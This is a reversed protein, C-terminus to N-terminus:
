SSLGGDHDPAPAPSGTAAQYRAHDAVFRRALVVRRAHGPDVSGAVPDDARVLFDRLAQACRALQGARHAAAALNWHHLPWAPELWAARELHRLAQALDGQALLCLGLSSAAEPDDPAVAAVHELLPRARASDGAALLDVARGLLAAPGSARAGVVHADDLGLLDRGLYYASPLARGLSVSRRAAAGVLRRAAAATLAFRQYGDAELPGLVEDRTTRLTADDRYLVSGIAGTPDCLVCLARWRAAPDGPGRPARRVVAVVTRGDAHRLGVLLAPRGLARRPAPEPAAAISRERAPPRPIRLAATVRALEGRATVDLDIRACLEDSLRRAGDPSTEAFAEIFQLIEDASLRSILLEAASAVDAATDLQNAFRALSQRHVREPDAFRATATDDGLEALLALVVLKTDDDLAPGAAVPDTGAVTRLAARVRDGAVEAIERLLEIAWVRREAGGALERVCLPVATAGLTRALERLTREDARTRAATFSARLRHLGAWSSSISGAVDGPSGDSARSGGDTGRPAM